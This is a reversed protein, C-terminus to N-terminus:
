QSIDSDEKQIVKNAKFETLIKHVVGVSCGVEFAIKRIPLNQLELIKNYKQTSLNKRGWKNGKYSYTMGNKIRQAIKVRESKKKSEDEAIHGYINIMLDSVIDNWPSPIKYIDELWIQRYSHLAVNYAKLLLLYEKFKKRNRFLRDFDWVILHEINNSKILKTLSDFSPRNSDKWASQKDEFLIYEGYTNISLCDKLQNEPNQDETSTRIYIAVKM